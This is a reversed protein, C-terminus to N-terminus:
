ATRLAAIRRALTLTSAALRAGDEETWGEVPAHFASAVLGSEAASLCGHCRACLGALRAAITPIRLDLMVKDAFMLGCFNTTGILIEGDDDVRARFMTCRYQSGILVPGMFPPAGEFDGDPGFVVDLIGPAAAHLTALPLLYSPM